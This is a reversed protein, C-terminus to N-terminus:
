CTLQTKSIHLRPSPPAPSSINCRFLPDFLGAILFLTALTQLMLVCLQRVRVVTEPLDLTPAIVVALVFVLLVLAVIVQITRDM